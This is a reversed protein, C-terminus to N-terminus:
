GPRRGWVAFQEAGGDPVAPDAALTGGEALGARSLLLQWTELHLPRGPLLDRAVAPWGTLATAPDSGIVVVVGGPSLRDVAAGLLVVLGEIPTRDVIGSLVVAGLPEGDPRTLEAAIDGLRVPLDRQWAEWAPPGSPEFGRAVIGATRLGAVLSGDGCDGHVVDGAWAQQRALEAIPGAWRAVSATPLLSDTALVPAARRAAADELLEVRRALFRLAEVSHAVGSRGLGDRIAQEAAASAVRTARQDVWRRMRSLLLRDALGRVGGVGSVASPVPADVLLRDPEGSGFEEDLM